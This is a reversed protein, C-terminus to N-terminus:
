YKPSKLPKQNIKVSLNDYFKNLKWKLELTGGDNNIMYDVLKMCSDTDQGNAPGNVGRDRADEKLFQEYGQTANERGRNKAREFRVRVPADIGILYFDEVKGLEEIEGVTRVGDIIINKYNNREFEELAMKALGGNGHLNRIENGKDQLSQRTIEREEITLEKRLVDSLKYYEFGKKCFYNAVTGKGSAITGILGIIM